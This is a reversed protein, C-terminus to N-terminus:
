ACDHFCKFFFNGKEQKELPFVNSTLSLPGTSVLSHNVNEVLEPCGDIILDELARLRHMESPLHLLQPCNVIHLMKLDTMTNLWEPLKELCHFNSILLTRLTNSAGQIWQPLTQQRACQEIHLYKMMLRQIPRESNFSLNLMVCRTVILVELKPLLHLPLSELNGCSQITLVELSPLQAQAGRFLFKLNDCYDFILTHLSNM